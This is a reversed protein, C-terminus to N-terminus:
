GGAGRYRCVYVRCQEQKLSNSKLSPTRHNSQTIKTTKEVNIVRRTPMTPIPQCKPQVAKTTKGVKIVGYSKMQEAAAVWRQPNVMLLMEQHWGMLKYQGLLCGM